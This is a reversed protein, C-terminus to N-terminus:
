DGLLIDGYVRELCGCCLGHSVGGVCCRSAPVLGLFSGCCCCRKIMPGSGEGWYPGVARCLVPSRPLAAEARQRLKWWYAAAAEATEIPCYLAERSEALEWYDPERNETKM